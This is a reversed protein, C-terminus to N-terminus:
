WRLIRVVVRVPEATRRGCDFRGGIGVNFDQRAPRKMFGECRWRCEIRNFQRDDFFSRWCGDLFQRWIM